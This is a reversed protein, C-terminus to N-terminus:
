GARLKKRDVYQRDVLVSQLRLRTSRMTRETERIATLARAPFVTAQSPSPKSEWTSRQDEPTQQRRAQATKRSSEAVDTGHGRRGECLHDTSAFRPTFRWM